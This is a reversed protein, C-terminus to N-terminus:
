RRELQRRLWEAWELQRPTPTGASPDGAIIRGLLSSKLHIANEPLAYATGTFTRLQEPTVTFDLPPQKERLFLRVAENIAVARQQTPTHGSYPNLIIRGDDAAMGAVHRNNAFYTRESEYPQRIEYGYIHTPLETQTKSEQGAAQGAAQALSVFSSTPLTSPTGAQALSLGADPM